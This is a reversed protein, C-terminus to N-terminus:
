NIHDLVSIKKCLKQSDPFLILKMADGLEALASQAHIRTLQDPDSSECVKLM